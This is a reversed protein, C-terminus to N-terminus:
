KKKVLVKSLVYTVCVALAAGILSALVYHASKAALSATEPGLGYGAVPARWLHATWKLGAPVYGVLKGITETGWEGWAEGANFFHPVIIGLPALVVLIALGIILKGTVSRM